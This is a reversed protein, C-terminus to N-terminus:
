LMLFAHLSQPLKCRDLQSHKRNAPPVIQTWCAQTFLIRRSNEAFPTNPQLTRNRVRRHTNKMLTQFLGKDSASATPSTMIWFLIMDWEPHNKWISAQSKQFMIKLLLEKLQYSKSHQLLLICVYEQFLVLNWGWLLSGHDCNSHLPCVPLSWAQTM